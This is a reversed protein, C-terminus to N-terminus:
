RAELTQVRATLEVVQNKLQQCYVILDPVFKSYDVSWPTKLSGDETLEDSGVSIARPKVAHAEQAFVGRDVSGDAKWVFDRVIINDIVSTDTSVCKSEKLRADSATNYNVTTVATHQISGATASSSNIFRFFLASASYATGLNKVAMGNYVGLDADVCVRGNATTTGVLLNGSADLTMNNVNNTYFRMPLNTVGQIYINTNDTALRVVETSGQYIQYGATTGATKAVGFGLLVPAVGSGPIIGVGLGNSTLTMATSGGNFWTHTGGVAILYQTTGNAIFGVDHNSLAGIEPRTSYTIGGIITGAPNGAALVGRVDLKYGAAPSATGIGVRDNASDVKLTSTDVTLDGTITASALSAVGGSGLIQNTTIKKTVGGVDVVPLVDTAPTLVSIATLQSIKLDAM